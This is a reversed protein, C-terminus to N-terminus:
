PIFYPGWPAIWSIGGLRTNFLLVSCFFINNTTNWVFGWYNQDGLGLDSAQFYVVRNPDIAYTNTIANVGGSPIFATNVFIRTTQSPNTVVLVSEWSGSYYNSFLDVIYQYYAQPVALGNKISLEEVGERLTQIAEDNLTNDAACVPLAWVGLLSVMALLVLIKKM